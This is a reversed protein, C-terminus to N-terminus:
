AFGLADGLDRWAEYRAAHPDHEVRAARGGFIMTSRAAAYAPWDPETGITPKGSRAFSTWARMMQASTQLAQEGSGFFPAGDHTGFVLGVDVFHCAGFAGGFLPSAHDVRFVHSAAATRAQALLLAPIGFLRDGVIANFRDFPTGEAYARLLAPAHDAGCAACVLAQLGAADLSRLRADGLTFFRYEDRMTGVMIPVDSGAGARMAAIPREPLWDGDLVPGYPMLGLKRPDGQERTELVLQRQAGIIADLPLANLRAARDPAIDLLEMLARGVRASQERTYGVHAAGSQLIAKHFLSRARPMALLCGISLAGASEGFVTVNAPDGGFSAINDRVWQLAAIQDMLGECGTAAVAGDTADRLNVFGLSGLRYNIAVAVVDGHAALWSADYVPCSGAGIMFAGGHIWVMVPARGELNPTWIDLVLCDESQAGIQGPVIQDVLSPNQPACPGSAIADRVGAWPEYRRPPAWRLPGLPPEAYPIGKFACVGGTALGRLKGCPADVLLRSPAQPRNLPDPSM